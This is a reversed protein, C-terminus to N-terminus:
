DGKVDIHIISIDDKILDYYKNIINKELSQLLNDNDSLHKIFINNLVDNIDDFELPLEVLGDTYLILEVNKNYKIEEYNFKVSEFLGIPYNSCILSDKEGDKLMFIEPHGCNCYKITKIETNVEVMVATFYQTNAFDKKGMQKMIRNNLKEFFDGPNIYKEMLTQFTMRIATTMLASAVGHGVADALFICYKNNDLQYWQYVDGSVNSFPFYKADIIIKESILKTPLMEGQLDSALKLEKEKETLLIERKNVNKSVKVYYKTKGKIMVSFINADEWFLEGTKMKNRFKGKWTQGAEITARLNDYFLFNYEGSKLLNPKNGIAEEKKYKTEDLFTKNVYILKEDVDTIAVSYEIQELFKDFFISRETLDSDREIISLLEKEIIPNVVMAIIKFDYLLSYDEKRKDNVILIIKGDTESNIKKCLENLKNFEYDDAFIIFYENFIYSNLDMDSLDKVRLFNYKEPCFVSEELSLEKNKEICVINTKINWRM